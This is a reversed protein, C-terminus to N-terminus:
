RISCGNCNEGKRNSVAIELKRSLICELETIDKITNRVSTNVELLECINNSVQIAKQIKEAESNLIHSIATEILAISKIVECISSDECKNCCECSNCNCNDCNCNNYNCNNCCKKHFCRFCKKQSDDALNDSSLIKVIKKNIKKSNIKKM